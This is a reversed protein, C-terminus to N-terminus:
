RPLHIPTLFEESSNDSYNSLSDLKSSITMTAPQQPKSPQSAAVHGRGEPDVAEGGEVLVVAEAMCVFALAPGQVGHVV